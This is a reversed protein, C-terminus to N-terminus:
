NENKLKKIVVNKENGNKSPVYYRKDKLSDPLYQQDVYGGYDHAYKYEPENIKDTQEKFNKDSRRELENSM